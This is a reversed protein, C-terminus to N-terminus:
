SSRPVPQQAWITKGAPTYRTGWRGALRAVLMLGRGGEDYRDARRHRPATVSGDSVECSLASDLIMRLRIPAEGHRIANTVLESVLLETTFMLEELGWSELQRAARGRAETVVAPDAPLEWSAVHGAPLAATRAVLLAADDDGATGPVLTSILSDCLEQLAPPDTLQGGMGSLLERMVALGVDMERSRSEVLGDTFLVLLSNEPLEIQREEFPFGGVGLPPGAPLDVFEPERGPAVVAPAPHGARAMTACQTIPDYVAFLCTAGLDIADAHEDAMRCVVDDLRTLLEEPELDLDALTRMATRVRGMTAAAYIGHGAVDGAVLGVRSGSLPIVDLWDGGAATGAQGPMYRSAVHVANQAPERREVLGRQLALATTHERTYRRANDICVAARAVIEEALVLDDETFDGPSRHRVFNAVGFIAGRARLPVSMVSHFGFREASRSQADGRPIWAAFDGPDPNTLVSGGSTLAQVAPSAEPYIRVEALRGAVEPAGPLVSHFAARRLPIAGSVPGISPEDGRLVSDQVDIMVLDALRPVVLEALERATRGVDLTSGIRTGAELVLSLRDRALEQDTADFTVGLAGCVRGGDGRVPSINVLWSRYRDEGPARAYVQWRAPEGTQVVRRVAAEFSALGSDPFLETPRRGRAASESALGLSQCASENLRVFRVDRDFLSLHAGAQEFAWGLFAGSGAGADGPHEDQSSHSFGAQEGVGDM